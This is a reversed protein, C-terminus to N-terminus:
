MEIYCYTGNDCNVTAIKNIWLGGLFDFDEKPIHIFRQGTALVARKASGRLFSM